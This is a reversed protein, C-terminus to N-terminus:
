KSMERLKKLTDEFEKDKGKGKLAAPKKAPASATAAPRPLPKPTAPGLPSISRPAGMMGFQLPRRQMTSQPRTIGGVQPPASKVPTTKLRGQMKFMWFRLKDKYIIGIIVLIILIGLSLWLWLKSGSPEPPPNESAVCCVLGGSCSDSSETESDTFCSSRCTGVGLNECANESVPIEQCSGICCSGESSSVYNGNCEQNLPCPTGGQSTCTQQPTVAVSCCVQDGFCDYESKSMGGTNYCLYSSTICSYGAKVCTSDNTVNTEPIYGGGGGDGGDGGGGSLPVHPWASWLIMATNRINGNNWCGSSDQINLLWTKAKALENANSNYLALMALSTDYFRSSNVNTEWYGEDPKSSTKQKQILEDYWGDGKTLFYLFSSPIFRQNDEATAVLYPLFPTIDYGLQDFALTAWLSGEYDCSTSGFCRAGISENTYGSASAGHTNSSVYLTDGGAKKYLLTTLFDQDCRIMFKRDLCSQSVSIFYKNDAVSLCSGTTGSLKMDAGINISTTSSGDNITCASAQHNTIDIELFWQLGTVSINRGRIWKEIGSVNMRRSNRISDYALLVQSTEKLTCSSSPWCSGGSSSAKNKEMVTYTNNKYGLALTSFISEQLSLTNKNFTSNQLCKYAANVADNETEFAAASAVATLALIALIFLVVFGEKKM